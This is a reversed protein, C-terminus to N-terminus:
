FSLTCVLTTSVPPQLAHSPFSITSAVMHLLCTLTLLLILLRPQSNSDLRRSCCPVHVKYQHRPSVFSTKATWPITRTSVDLLSSRSRYNHPLMTYCMVAYLLRFLCMLLSRPLLALVWRHLFTNLCLVTHSRRCPLMWLHPTSVTPFRRCQWTLLYRPSRSILRRRPCM